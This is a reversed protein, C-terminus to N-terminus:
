KESEGKLVFKQVQNQLRDAEVSLVSSSQESEVASQQNRDAIKSINDILEEMGQLASRQERVADFLHQTVGNIEASVNGISRVSDVAGATLEVGKKVVSTTNTAMDAAMKAAEASRAALTQVEGAVVGFGKGASGARAAEISANVALLTTQAAVDSLTKAIRTIEQADSDIDGMAQSLASMQNNADQIMVSIEGVKSNTQDAADTVQDLHERVLTVEDVLNGASQSQESSAERLQVSQQNLTDAMSSLQFAAGRLNRMTENMSSIINSLSNRILSFDGKYEGQPSVDLHGAAIHNLVRDIESVYQNLNGVTEGLTESLVELEDGTTTKEVNAHLDGHSLGVMRGTMKEIPRSISRSLHITWLISIFLLLAAALMTTFVANNTLHAYDSRPIEIMLSWHTGRIPSFSTLISSGNYSIIESGTEGLSMRTCINDCVSGFVNRLPTGVSINEDPCGVIQGQQNIIMAQGHSGVHIDNLVDNLIDYKYVGVIYFLIESNSYVPMGMTIGMQNQFVTTESITLNETEKLLSLFSSELAQPSAEDGQILAGSKDYIGITHLEYVEKTESLLAQRSTEANTGEITLRSDGSISIMRDALLHINSEITKASQRALPQLNDLLLNNTLNLMSLIMIISCVTVLLFISGITSGLIKRNLSTRTQKLREAIVTEIM